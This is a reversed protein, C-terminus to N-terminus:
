PFHNSAADEQTVVRDPHDLFYALIAYTKPKLVVREEAGDNTSRWLCQNTPDLRFPPFAKTTM